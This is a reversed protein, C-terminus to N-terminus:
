RQCIMAQRKMNGEVHDILVSKYGYDTWTSTLTCSDFNVPTYGVSEDHTTRRSSSGFLYNSLRRRRGTTRWLSPDSIQFAELKGHPQSM